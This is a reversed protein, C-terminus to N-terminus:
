TFIGHRECLGQEILEAVRKQVKKALDSVIDPDDADSAQLSLHSTIPNGYFIRYRVPLPVPFIPIPVAEIGFM